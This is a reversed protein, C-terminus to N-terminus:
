GCWQTFGDVIVQLFHWCFPELNDSMLCFLICVFQRFLLASMGMGLTWTILLFICLIGTRVLQPTEWSMASLWTSHLGPSARAYGLGSDRTLMTNDTQGWPGSAKGLENSNVFTSERNINWFWDEVVLLPTSLTNVPTVVPGFDGSTTLVWDILAVVLTLNLDVEVTDSRGTSPRSPSELERTALALCHSMIDINFTGTPSVLGLQSLSVQSHWRAHLSALWDTLLCTLSLTGGSIEVSGCWSVFLTLVVM